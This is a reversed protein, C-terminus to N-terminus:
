LREKAAKEAAAKQQQTAPSHGDRIVRHLAAMNEAKIAARCAQVVQTKFTGVRVRSAQQIIQNVEKLCRLLEEQNTARKQHDAAMDMNLNRLTRYHKRMSPMSGLIRFDEAKILSTKILNTNDAAAASLHVRSQNHEEVKALLTKLNEMLAPFHAVTSLNALGFGSAIETVIDGAVDIDDVRISVQVSSAVVTAQIVMPLKNRLCLFHLKFGEPSTNCTCSVHFTNEMWNAIRPLRENMTFSVNSEPTPLSNVEVNAYMAFKPLEIELEFVHFSTSSRTGVLVKLMLLVSVDKIPRLPISAQQSLTQPYFFLSEEDFVQEGFVVAGRIVADEHSTSLVLNCTAAQKDAAIVVDVRTDSPIMDSAMSAQLDEDKANHYSGLEYTLDQKKQTLEAITAVQLALEAELNVQASPPEEADAALYGRVEGQQGCVILELKKDGRYDGTLISSVPCSLNDRHVLAGTDRQRVEVRGNSWGCILEPVGDGDLDYSSIACVNHKSKVRWVRDMRDYVGLTGNVLGYGFYSFDLPCLAVFRDAEAAEAVVDENRYVRLDCDDTGVVLEQRGDGDVDAFFMASVNDGTVTWFRENGKSDFGQLSCNGGVFALPRDNSSFVGIKIASAGDSLDKFFLDKNSDVDYCQLSTSTGVLLVDKADARTPALNGAALSTIRKNINLYSINSDAVSQQHPNHIFVKGALTACALSTHQGDFQGLAAQGREIKENLQLHFSPIM